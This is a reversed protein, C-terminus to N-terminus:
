KRGGQPDEIPRVKVGNGAGRTGQKGSSPRVHKAQKLNRFDVLCMDMPLTLGKKKKKKRKKKGEDGTGPRNEKKKEEGGGEKEM